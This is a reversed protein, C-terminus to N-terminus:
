ARAGGGRQLRRLQDRLRDLAQAEIQRIRERSLNWREGIERLTLQNDDVFGFRLRLVEAELPSLHERMLRTVEGAMQRQALADLPSTEERNPDEFIELLSQDADDHVQQDLSVAHDGPSTRVREIKDVSLRSHEALEEATPRRGLLSALEREVKALHARAEILHVPIRVQRGKDALARNMAHRIWWSAYTSFKVGRECDYRALGKMLGLNGEQILDILPLLDRRYRRAIAVVLRLNARIFADRAAAATRSAQNVEAVYAVFRPDKGSLLPPASTSQALRNLEAIVQEFRERDADLARLCEAAARAARALRRGATGASAGAQVERAVRRLQTLEALPAELTPKLLDAILGVAPAFALAREWARLELERIERTRRQEEEASLPPHAALARFYMSLTSGLEDEAPAEEAAAEEGPKEEGPAEEAPALPLGLEALEEALEETLGTIPAEEVPSDEYMLEQAITPTEVPHARRGRREAIIHKRAAIGSRVGAQAGAGAETGYAEQQTQRTTKISTRM